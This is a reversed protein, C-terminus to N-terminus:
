GSPSVADAGSSTGIKTGVGQMSANRVTARMSRASQELHKFVRLM